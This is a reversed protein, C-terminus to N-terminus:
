KPVYRAEYRPIHIEFLLWNSKEERKNEVKIEADHMICIERLRNLGLGRNEGKTSAGARFLEEIESSKMFRSPNAVSLEMDGPNEKLVLKLVPREEPFEEFNECANDILIGLSEILEHLPFLCEGQEVHIEYDVRIGKNECSLCRHYLYGALIPNECNTLISDYRCNELLKDGYQRQMAVLEELTKATIHMSYIAGLQNKFDHQRKRIASSLEVYVSGYVRHLEMELNKKEVEIKAQLVRSIYLYGMFICTVIILMSVRLPSQGLNYDIILVIEAFVYFMGACRLKIDEKYDLIKVRRSLRTGFFCIIVLLAVSGAFALTRTDVITQLFMNPISIVSEILGCVAIGLFYKLTTVGLPMKFRVYCFLWMIVYVAVMSLRPVRGENVLYMIVCEIVIVGAIYRDITFKQEFFAHLCIIIALLESILTTLVIIKNM